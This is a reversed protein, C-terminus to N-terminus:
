DRKIKLLRELFSSELTIHFNIKKYVTDYEIIECFGDEDKHWFLCIVSEETFGVVKESNVQKKMQETAWHCRECLTVLNENLEEWPNQTTYKKHHVHLLQETNECATCTFNDRQFIELRKKQWKPSRLKEQYTM